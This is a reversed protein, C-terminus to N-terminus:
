KARTNCDAIEAATLAKGRWNFSTVAGTIPVIRKCSRLAPMDDVFDSHCATGVCTWSAGDILYEGKTAPASLSLDASEVRPGAFLPAAFALLGFPLVSLLLRKM